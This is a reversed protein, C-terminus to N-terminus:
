LGALVVLVLFSVFSFEQPSRLLTLLCFVVGLRIALAHVKYISLSCGLFLGLGFFFRIGRVGGGLGVVAWGWECRM